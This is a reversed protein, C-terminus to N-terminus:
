ERGFVCVVRFGLRVAVGSAPEGREHMGGLKERGLSEGKKM